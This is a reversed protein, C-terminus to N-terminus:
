TQLAVSQNSIETQYAELTTRFDLVKRPRNNLRDAIKDVDKQSYISLAIGKPLYQRILGNANENTPSIVANRVTQLTV